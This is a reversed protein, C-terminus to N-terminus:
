SRGITNTTDEVEDSNIGSATNRINLILFQPENWPKKEINILKSEIM